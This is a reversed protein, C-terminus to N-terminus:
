VQSGELGYLLEDALRDFARLQGHLERVRRRLVRREAREERWRAIAAHVREIDEAQVYRRHRRGGQWASRRYYPGHLVEGSACHCGATGCRVWRRELHGSLPGTVKPAPKERQMGM